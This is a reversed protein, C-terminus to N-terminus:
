MNELECEYCPHEPDHCPLPKRTGGRVVAWAIVLLAAWALAAWAM